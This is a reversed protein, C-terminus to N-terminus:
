QPDHPSLQRGWGWPSATAEVGETRLSRPSSPKHTAKPCQAAEQLRQWASRPRCHDLPTTPLWVCGGLNGAM